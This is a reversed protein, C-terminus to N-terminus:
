LTTPSYDDDDSAALQNSKMGSAAISQSNGIVIRM